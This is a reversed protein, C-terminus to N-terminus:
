SYIFRHSGGCLSLWITICLYETIFSSFSLSFFKGLASFAACSNNCCPSSSVAYATVGNPNICELVCTLMLAGESTYFVLYGDWDYKMNLEHYLEVPIHLEHFCMTTLCDWGDNLQLVFSENVAGGITVYAWTLRYNVWTHAMRIIALSFLVWWPLLRIIRTLEWWWTCRHMDPPGCLISSFGFM